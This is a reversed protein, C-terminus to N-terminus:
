RKGKFKDIFGKSKGEPVEKVIEEKMVDSTKVVKPRSNRIATLIEGMKNAGRGSENTGWYDDGWHNANVLEKDGTNSLKDLLTKDSFKANLVEEMVKVREDIWNDPIPLSRAFDRTKYPDLEQLAEVCESDSCRASYFANAASPFEKGRFTVPSPFNLALFEFENFFGFISNENFSVYNIVPNM